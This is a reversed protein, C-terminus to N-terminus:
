SDHMHALLDSTLLILSAATTEPDAAHGLARVALRIGESDSTGFLTPLLALAEATVGASVEADLLRRLGNSLPQTEIAQLLRLIDLADKDRVRDNAGVREALKHLKAVLLASPGAVRLQVVRDDSADLGTVRRVEFDVLAGELGKARRAVTRGHSGLDASRRGPGALVEPVMLDVYIGDPSTWGGPQNRRTFGNAELLESIPPEDALDLPSVAFDADTTYEPVAISADGTHLYIAQAGVLIVSQSHVGVAIVADLLAARAQVYLPDPASM